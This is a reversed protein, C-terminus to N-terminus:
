NLISEFEQMDKEFQEKSIKVPAQYLYEFEDRESIKKLENGAVSKRAKELYYKRDLLPFLIEDRQKSM